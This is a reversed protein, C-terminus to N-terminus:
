QRSAMVITVTMTSGGRVIETEVAQHPKFRGLAEMYDYINAIAHEGMRVIIDGDRLGAKEAPSGGSTGTIRLGKGEFGYDPMTGVYVNFGAARRAAVPPDAKTFALTTDARDITRVVDRVLGVITTQGDYNVKEWTDTPRHYDKHVGTFFALVPIGKTYFTSHDSPGVGEKSYKLTFGPNLSDLMREFGPSTGTGQVQLRGSDLRGIMDLNIMAVMRLGKPLEVSRVFAQSGLLGEEEANFAAFMITRRNDRRRAFEEALALLGATGSANDDAGYHIAPEHGGALSGEGGTGLHDFHAGIVIVEEKLKPDIGPLLGVVNPVSAELRRVDATMSVKVGPFAFSAPKGTSDIIRRLDALTRGAADRLMALSGDSAFLAPLGANTFGRIFSMAPLETTEGPQNIFIIGKAGHAAATRIKAAWSSVESFQGHPSEGEPSYRMVLLIAGRADIAAYDDYGTASDRIGYGAFVLPGSVTGNSSFALPTFDAGPALIIEPHGARTITVKNGKGAEVGHLFSFSEYYRDPSRRSRKLSQLEFREFARGIFAAAMSNGKSPPRRGSMEDSALTRIYSTVRALVTDRPVVGEWPTTTQASLEAAAFLLLPLTRLLINPRM